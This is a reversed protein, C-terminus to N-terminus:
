NLFNIVENENLGVVGVDLDENDQFNEEDYEDVNVKRFKSVGINKVMIFLKEM